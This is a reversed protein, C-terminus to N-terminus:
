DRVVRLWSILDLFFFVYILFIVMSDIADVEALMLTFGIDKSGQM